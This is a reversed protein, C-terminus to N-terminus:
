SPFLTPGLIIMAIKFNLSLKAQKFYRQHLPLSPRRLCKTTFGVRLSGKLIASLIVNCTIRETFAILMNFKKWFQVIKPFCCWCFFGFLSKKGSFFQCSHPVLWQKVRESRLDWWNNEKSDATCNNHHENPSNPTPNVLLGRFSIEKLEWWKHITPINHPSIKDRDNM